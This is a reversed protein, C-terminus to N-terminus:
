LKPKQKKCIKTSSKQEKSSQNRSRASRQEKSSQKRSTASKQEKSNQFYVHIKFLAWVLINESPSLAM